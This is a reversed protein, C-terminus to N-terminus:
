LKAVKQLFFLGIKKQNDEFVMSTCYSLTSHRKKGNYFIGISEFVRQKVEIAINLDTNFVSLREISLYILNHFFCHSSVLRNIKLPASEM